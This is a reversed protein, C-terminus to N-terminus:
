FRWTTDIRFRVGQEPGIIQETLSLRAMVTLSSALSVIARFDHGKINSRGFRSLTDQAYEENVALSEVYAYNYRLRLDGRQRNEGWSAGLGFAFVDDSFQAIVPDDAIGSYDQVNVIGDFGLWAPAGVLTRELRASGVLVFYDREGTLETLNQPDPRGGFRHGSFQFRLTGLPVPQQWEAQASWLDGHLKISGDPLRFYSAALTLRANGPRWTKALHIGTPDVDRDWFYDTVFRYPFGQRGTTLRWGARQYRLFYRDAFVDRDPIANDDFRILTITPTNQNEFTGTRARVNVEWHASPEWRLGLRQTLRVRTRDARGVVSDRESEFRFRTDGYLHISAAENLAVDAQVLTTTCIGLLLWARM